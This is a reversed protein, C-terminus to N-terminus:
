YLVSEKMNDSILMGKGSGLSVNNAVNHNFRHTSIAYPVVSNNAQLNVIPTTENSVNKVRLPIILAFVAAAAVASVAYVFKSNNLIFNNKKIKKINNSYNMKLQLRTFSDELFKDDLVVSNKDDEFSKKIAKMQALQKQCEACSNLHNEYKAKIDNPLENDLYISHIDKTPCFSM